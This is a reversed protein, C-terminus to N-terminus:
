PLEVIRWYADLLEILRLFDHGAKEKLIYGAVNLDYAEIKDEDRDSTTLMFVVVRRFDENSRIVKLFEIGNMRPMNIDLLILVPRPLDIETHEGALIDLAEQGDHARFVPNLIRAKSLARNIAKADGDDDEVLLINLTKTSAATTM